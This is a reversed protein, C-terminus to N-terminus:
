SAIPAEYCKSTCNLPLSRFKLVKIDKITSQITEESRGNIVVHAGTKAFKLAIAKGIGSTSGTVVVLKDRLNLEMKFCKRANLHILHKENLHFHFNLETAYNVRLPGLKWVAEKM